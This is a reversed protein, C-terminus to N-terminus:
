PGIGFIAGNSPYVLKYEGLKAFPTHYGNMDGVTGCHWICFPRINGFFIGTERLINLIGKIDATIPNFIGLLWNTRKGTRANLSVIKYNVISGHAINVDPYLSIDYNSLTPIPSICCLANLIM